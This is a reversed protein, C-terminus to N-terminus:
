ALGIELCGLDRSSGTNGELLDRRRVRAEVKADADGAPVAGGDASRYGGVGAAQPDQAVPRHAGLQPADLRNEGVAADHRMQGPQDLVVGAVVVRGQQGAGFAGERDDGLGPQLQNGPRSTQNGRDCADRAKVLDM